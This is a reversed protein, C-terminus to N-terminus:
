SGHGLGREATGTGESYRDCALLAEALGLGFGIDHFVLPKDPDDTPREVHRATYRGSAVVHPALAGEAQRWEITVEFYGRRHGPTLVECDSCPSPHAPWAAELWVDEESSPVWTLM